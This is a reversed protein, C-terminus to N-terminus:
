VGLFENKLASRHATRATNKMSALLGLATFEILLHSGGFSMFPVSVGTVPLLGVTMGINVTFHTILFLAVGIGYLMEFNTAGVLALM